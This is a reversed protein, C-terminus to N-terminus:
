RRGTELGVHGIDEQRLAPPVVTQTQRLVHRLLVANQVDLPQMVDPTRVTEELVCLLHREMLHGHGVVVEPEVM